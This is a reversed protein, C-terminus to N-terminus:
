FPWIAFLASGSGSMAAYLAGQTYLSQKRHKLEPYQAFVPLELDNDLKQPWDTAPGGLVAALDRDHDYLTYDLAKYAAITSSHIDSPLVELRGPLTVPFPILDTGTGRAMMPEDYIFFPVDSGLPTAIEALEEQSLGLDFLENLGRLTFAADSSGGGLGAGAPIHKELSIHVGPLEPIATKLAQYAKICLNDNVEGDLPRGGLSLQCGPVKAPTIELQDTLDLVPYMVTELLHYGNSLKGKIFLGLNVKAHPKLIVRSSTAEIKGHSSVNM